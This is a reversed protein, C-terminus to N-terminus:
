VTTYWSKYHRHANVLYNFIATLLSRKYFALCTTCWLSLSHCRTVLFSFSNCINIVLSLLRYHTVVLSIVVSLSHYLSLSCVVAFSLLCFLTIRPKLHFLIDIQNRFTKIWNKICHIVVIYKAISLFRSTSSMYKRYTTNRGYLYKKM